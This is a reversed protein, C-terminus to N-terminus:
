VARLREWFGRPTVINVGMFEKLILLDADGTVLLEAGGSVATDIINLDDSDRCVGAALPAPEVIEAMAKLYTIIEKIHPRPLRVKQDLKERVEALIFDSLIISHSEVCIEFVEACLGRSAFAAILVNTDLVVRM